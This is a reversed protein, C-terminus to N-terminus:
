INWELLKGLFKELEPTKPQTFIQDSDGYEWLKGQNLFLVKDCAHRAFGMEHTVILFKIGENKLQNVTFLVDATYEPDLASTPEDLLLFKPRFSVARAISIRQQQGGSLTAPKKHAHDELGFRKLQAMARDTAEKRPIKHVKVLPLVINDLASLHSLLGNQQFVFAINKRYEELQNKEITVGDLSFTGSTQPILGGLIRLLTSKGGGSPGIIALTDITEELCIHDLIIKGDDFVKTIHDLVLEM